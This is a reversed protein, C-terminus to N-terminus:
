HFFYGRSSVFTRSGFTEPSGDDDGDGTACMQKERETNGTGRPQDNTVEPKSQLMFNQNDNMM